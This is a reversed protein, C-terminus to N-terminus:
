ISIQTLIVQSKKGTNSVSDALTMVGLGAMGLLAATMVVEVLSAGLQSNLVKKLLM